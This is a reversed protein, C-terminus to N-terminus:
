GGFAAAPDTTAVRRLGAVSALGGVAIAVVLLSVYSSMPIEVPFPFAPAILAALVAALLGSLVSLILAQLGLGAMLLRSTAGTAKFVAFDRVRELASMYVISGIIGAAVVWLLGNILSLTQTMQTLTRDLDATVEQDTQQVLGAPLSTPVGATVITSALPQGAILAEQVDAIPLFVTPQGFYFSTKELVGVVPYEFGAFSVTEGVAVDLSEDVMAEAPGAAMRGDAVEDPQTLGGPEYGVVNVDLDDVTSRLVLLPSAATVGPAAAVQQAAADPVLKTTTFPGSTGEAVVWADAGFLDVVRGSELEIHHLLGEMVLTLSFALGAAVVAILFRRKRWQLDRLSIMWMGRGYPGISRPSM